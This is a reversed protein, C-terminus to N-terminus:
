VGTYTTIAQDFGSLLGTSPPTYNPFKFNQLSLLRFRVAGTAFDVELDRIQAPSLAFKLGSQTFDLAVFEGLDRLLMTWTTEVSVYELGSSYLRVFEVVQREVDAQVCLNPFDIARAITKGTKTRSNANQWKGTARATKGLVPTFAYNGQAVNLFTREDAEISVTDEAIAYQDIRTSAAPTPWDEFHLSKLALKGAANIFMELRVQEFMSLVYELITSEEDGIWARAKISAIASQAPTTKASFFSWSATDLDSSGVGLFLSLIDKAQEVINDYQSSAYPVRTRIVAVDGDQWVYPVSANDSARRLGTVDVTYYGSVTQPAATFAAVYFVDGRRILVESFAEPVRAANSGNGVCVVFSAASGTVGVVTGTIGGYNQNPVKTKMLTGGVDTDAGADFAWGLTWDGIVYPVAKGVSSNPANIFQDQDIVPLGPKQNLREFRDRALFTLADKGRVLGQDEKVYGTFLTLYSSAVDRIGFKLRLEADIFSTFSAGGALYENYFGDVNSLDIKAEAFKIEPALLEGMTRIVKPFVARGEYFDSGVFKPRDSTRLLLSGKQLEAVAELQSEGGRFTDDLFDQTIATAAAYARVRYDDIATFPLAM